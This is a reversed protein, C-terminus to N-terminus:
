FYLNIKQLHEFLVLKILRDKSQKGRKKRPKKTSDIEKYKSSYGQLTFKEPILNM